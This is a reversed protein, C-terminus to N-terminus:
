FGSPSQFNSVTCHSLSNLVDLPRYVGHKSAALPMNCLDVM